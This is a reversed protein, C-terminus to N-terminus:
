LARWGLRKKQNKHENNSAKLVGELPLQLKFSDGILKLCVVKNSSNDGCWDRQYISIFLHAQTSLSLLLWSPVTAVSDFGAQNKNKIM